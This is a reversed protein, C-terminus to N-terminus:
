LIKISKFNGQADKIIKIKMKNVEKEKLDSFNETNLDKYAWVNNLRSTYDKNTYEKVLDKVNKTLPVIDLDLDIYNFFSHKTSLDVNSYVHVKNHKIRTGGITTFKELLQHKLNPLKRPTRIVPSKNNNAPLAILGNAVLNEQLSKFTSAFNLCSVEDNVCSNECTLLDKIIQLDKFQSTNLFYEKKQNAKNMFFGHSKVSAKNNIKLTKTKTNFFASHVGSQYLYSDKESDNISNLDKGLKNLYMKSEPHKNNYKASYVLSEPPIKYSSPLYSGNDPMGSEYPILGAEHSFSQYTASNVISKMVYDVKIMCELTLTDLLFEPAEVKIHNKNKNNFSMYAKQGGSFCSAYASELCIIKAMELLKDSEASCNLKLKLTGENLNLGKFACATLLTGKFDIQKLLILDGYIIAKRLSGQLALIDKIQEEISNISNFKKLEIIRLAVLDNYEKHHKNYGKHEKLSLTLLNPESNFFKKNLGLSKLYSGALKYNKDKSKLGSICNPIIHHRQIKNTM